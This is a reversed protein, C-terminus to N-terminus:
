FVLIQRRIKPGVGLWVDTQLAVGCHCCQKQLADNTVIDAMGVNWFRGQVAAAVPVANSEEKWKGYSFLGALQSVNQASPFIVKLKFREAHKIISLDIAACACINCYEKVGRPCFSVNLFILSETELCYKKSKVRFIKIKGDRLRRSILFPRFPIM